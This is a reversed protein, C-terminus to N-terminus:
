KRLLETEIGRRVEEWSRTTVAGADLAECRREIEAAWAQQVAERSEDSEADLSAILRTAIEARDEEPLKLADQLVSQATSTMGRITAAFGAVALCPRVLRQLRRRLAQSSM